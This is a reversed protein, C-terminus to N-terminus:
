PLEAWHTIDFIKDGCETRACFTGKDKQILTVIWIHSMQGNADTATINNTVICKSKNKPPMTSSSLKQFTM